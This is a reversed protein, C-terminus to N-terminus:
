RSAGGAAGDDQGSAPAAAQVAAAEGERLMDFASFVGALLAEFKKEFGKSPNRKSQGIRAKIPLAVLKELPISDSLAKECEDYYAFILQLMLLSKAPSSVADVADYANQQLYSERIMAAIELLLTEKDSLAGKGVIQIMRRLEEERGLVRLARKRLFFWDGSVNERWWGEVSDIYKSYSSTWSLAPFHRRYALSPDLAWLGKTYQMSAQTVPESFDGGPPSVMGIISLSGERQPSGHAVVRGAREYFAAIRSAIYSPFGKEGPMEGMGGSIERLAEAWRSTSDAVLLVDYGMNRYYEGITAGTYISAERAAVPMNSTNAILVMKEMIGTESFKGLLDAMENGREGCGVYVIIDANCGEALSHGLVTKGVGFGGPLTVKGGKSLPFMIDIVRQGTLLPMSPPKETAYPLPEHVPWRTVLPIDESGHGTDVRACAKSAKMRGSGISELTGSIGPPVTIRIDIPGEKVIGLVDGSNVSAGKKAKPIFEWEKGSIASASTGRAIFDGFSDLPRELGDFIGGLLGPGLEISLPGGAREVPEGLMLGAGNEYIQIEAEDGDITVIEGLLREHGVLVTDRVHAGAIGRARVINPMAKILTGM